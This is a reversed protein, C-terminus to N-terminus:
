KVTLMAVFKAGHTYDTLPLIGHRIKGESIYLPSEAQMRTCEKEAGAPFHQISFIGQAERHLLKKLSLSVYGMTRRANIEVCPHIRIIGSDDTYLLMDIGIPGNHLHMYLSPPLHRTYFEQLPSLLEIMCFEHGAVCLRDTHRLSNGIYKGAPSNHMESWGIYEAGSHTPVFHMSFDAVRDYWQDVICGSNMQKRIRVLDADALKGEAFYIGRGSSTHNLKVVSRGKHGVASVLETVTRCSIPIDEQEVFGEHVLNTWIDCAASRSSLDAMTSNWEPIYLHPIGKKENTNYPPFIRRLNPSNAWPVLRHPKDATLAAIRNTQIFDPVLLGATHWLELLFQPPEASVAVSDGQSSYVMPLCALDAEFAQLNAPPQYSVCGNSIALEATPNFYHLLKMATCFEYKYVYIVSLCVYFFDVYRTSVYCLDVFM